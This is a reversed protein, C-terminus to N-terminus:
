FMNHGGEGGLEEFGKGNEIEVEGGSYINVVGKDRM